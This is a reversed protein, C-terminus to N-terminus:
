AFSSVRHSPTSHIHPYAYRHKPNRKLAQIPGNTRWQAHTRAHICLAGEQVVANVLIGSWKGVFSTEIARSLPLWIGFILSCYALSSSLVSITQKCYQNAWPSASVSAQLHLYLRRYRRGPDEEQRLNFLWKNKVAQTPAELVM